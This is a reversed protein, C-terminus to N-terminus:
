TELKSNRTVLQGPMEEVIDDQACRLQPTKRADSGAASIGLVALSGSKRADSGAASIGLAALSGSKALSWTRRGRVSREAEPHLWRFQSSDSGVGLLRYGVVLMWSGIAL